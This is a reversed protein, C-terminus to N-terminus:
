APPLPSELGAQSWIAAAARCGEDIVSEQDVQTPRGDELVVKGDVLVTRVDHGSGNYVLLSVLDAHPQLHPARLDVIALDARKGVEISGIEQELGLATASGMTMLWLAQRASLAGWDGTRIRLLTIAFRMADWPNMRLWDTGLGVTIGAEYIRAMRAFRGRTATVAPCHAMRAGARGFRDVDADTALSLHAAVLDPGLIGHDDLYETSTRGYTDRIFDAEEANQALHTHLGVNRRTAAERIARLLDPTCTNPAHPGFRVTIRGGDAQHWVEFLRENWELKQRGLAPLRDHVGEHIRNLDTDLIKEALVARIGIDRVARATDAMYHYIDNITTCGFRLVEACGLLSLAYTSAPSLFREMPLALGWFSGPRDETLGRFLCGTMHTHVNVLGPIVAHGATDITRAASVRRALEDADGVAVIRGDRVAVAGKAIVRDSPDVTVVPGGTLVLDIAEPQGAM